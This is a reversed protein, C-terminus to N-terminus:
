SSQTVAKAHAIRTLDKRWHRYALPAAVVFISASIAARAWDSSLDLFFAAGAAILALIAPPAVATVLPFKGIYRTANMHATFWVVFAAVLMAVAAGPAKYSPILLVGAVVMAVAGAAQAALVCRPRGAAVLSWRAHGGLVTVPLIWILIAFSPAADGYDKGFLLILIPQSLMTIVLALFIGLWAVMRTSAALLEFFVGDSDFIKRSIVPFITFHYIWGFTLLSVVTRHAVGFRGTEEGGILHAVLIIPVYQQFAWLMNALGLAVGERVLPLLEATPIRIRVPVVFLRQVLVYYSAMSGVALLEWLGVRWLDQASGVFVFVGVAFVLARICQGAAVRGMMDQSQLLWPQILPLALLAVAFFWVLQVEQGSTVVVSGIFGMVAVSVVSIALRASPIQEALRALQGRDQSVRRVGIPGLGCDIIMAFFVSMAVVVEITGYTEPEMTRALYAFAVFGMIKSLVDGGSLAMFDRLLKM